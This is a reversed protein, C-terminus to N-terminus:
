KEMKFLFFFSVKRNIKNSTAVNSISLFEMALGGFVYDSEDTTIKGGYVNGSSQALSLGTICVRQIKSEWFTWIIRVRSLSSVTLSVAM